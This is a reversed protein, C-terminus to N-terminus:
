IQNPCFTDKGQSRPGSLTLTRAPEAEAKATPALICGQLQGEMQRWGGMAGPTHAQGPWSPQAQKRHMQPHPAWPRGVESSLHRTNVLARWSVRTGAPARRGGPRGGRPPVSLPEPDPRGQM